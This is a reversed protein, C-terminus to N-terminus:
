WVPSRQVLDDILGDIDFSEYGSSSRQSGGSGQSHSPPLISGIDSSRRSSRPRTHYASTTDLTNASGRRKSASIFPLWSPVSSRHSASTSDHDPEFTTSGTNHFLIPIIVESDGQDEQTLVFPAAVSVSRRREIQEVPRSARLTTPLPFSPLALPSSALHGPTSPSVPFEEPSRRDRITMSTSSSEVSDHTDTYVRDSDHVPVPVPVLTHLSESFPLVDSDCSSTRTHAQSPHRPTLTKPDPFYPVDDALPPLTLPRWASESLLSINDWSIDEQVQPSACRTRTTCLPYSISAPSPAQSHTITTAPFTHVPLLSYDPINTTPYDRKFATRRHVLTTPRPSRPIAYIRVYIYAFIVLVFALVILPFLIITLLTQQQM